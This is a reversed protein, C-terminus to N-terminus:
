EDKDKRREPSVLLRNQEKLLEKIDEITFDLQDAEVLLGRVLETLVRL